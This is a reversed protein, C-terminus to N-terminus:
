LLGLDHALLDQVFAVASADPLFGLEFCAAGRVLEDLLGLTFALGQPDGYPLFVQPMLRALAEAPELRRAQNTPAHQILFLARLPASGPTSAGGQSNWPTGHITFGGEQQRLAVREDSLLCTGASQAWLRATTSKGAGSVGSFLLGEGRATRIGSAHLMVGWGRALLYVASVEDLVVPPVAVPSGDLREDFAWLEGRRGDPDLQVAQIPHPTPHPFPSLRLHVQGELM